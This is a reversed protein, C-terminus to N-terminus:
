MCSKRRSVCQIKVAYFSRYYHLHALTYKTHSFTHPHTHTHAHTHARTHIWTCMDAFKVTNSIRIVPEDVGVFVLVWVM